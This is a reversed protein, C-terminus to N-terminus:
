INEHPLLETPFNHCEDHMAQLMAINKLRVIEKVNNFNDLGKESWSYPHILLQIKKVPKELISLPNGYKWRHESDSFYYVNLSESPTNKCYHFFQKDYVNILGDITISSALLEPTPRHFSFRDIPVDLVQQLIGVDKKIFAAINEPQALGTSNVHLGIKHGMDHMKKILQINKFALTNYTYNRIQFFYSSQIGLADQEINALEYAKEVSFEVDHRLAFFCPTSQKIDAFDMLPIAKKITEILKLYHKYSFDKM